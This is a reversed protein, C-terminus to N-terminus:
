NTWILIAKFRKDDWFRRFSIPNQGLIWDEHGIRDSMFNFLARDLCIHHLKGDHMWEPRISKKLIDIVRLMVLSVYELLVLFILLCVLVLSSLDSFNALAILNSNFTWILRTRLALSNCWFRRPSKLLHRAYFIPIFKGGLCMIQVLFIRNTTSYCHFISMSISFQINFHRVVFLDKLIQGFLWFFDLIYILKHWSYHPIHDRM